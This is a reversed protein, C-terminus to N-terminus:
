IYHLLLPGWTAFINWCKLDFAFFLWVEFRKQHHSNALKTDINSVQFDYHFTFYKDLYVDILMKSCQTLVLVFDWFEFIMLYKEFYNFYKLTNQRFMQFFLYYMPHLQFIKHIIEIIVKIAIFTNQSKLLGVSYHM